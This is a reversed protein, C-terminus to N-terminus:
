AVEVPPHFFRRLLPQQDQFVREAEKMLETLFTVSVDDFRAPVHAEIRLICDDGYITKMHNVRSNDNVGMLIDLLGKRIWTLLGMRNPDQIRRSAKEKRVTSTRNGISLATFNLGCRPLRSGYLETACQIAIDVPSNNVVGGDIYYDGDVWVPPFFIPAASSADVVDALILNRDHNDWSRFLRLVGDEDAAVVVLPHRVDGMTRAGFVEHLISRKQNGKYVPEFLPQEPNLFDFVHVLLRVADDNLPLECALSGALVAGVSTGVILDGALVAKPWQRQILRFLHYSFLGRCGGGDLAVLHYHHSTHHSSMLLFLFAM